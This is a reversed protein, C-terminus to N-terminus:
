NLPLSAQYNDDDNENDQFKDKIDILKVYEGTKIKNVRKKAFEVYEPSLDIGFYERGLKKAAVATTGSGMFPDLVTKGNSSLIIREILKLPFPAPHPNNKEQGFEWIDGFSNAGKALKFKKKAILYIVEYTPM